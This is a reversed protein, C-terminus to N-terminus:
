SSYAGIHFTADYGIRMTLSKREPFARKAALAAEVSRKGVFYQQSIPEIAVFQGHHSLELEAKLRTEYIKKAQEAITM